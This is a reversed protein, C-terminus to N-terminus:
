PDGLDLAEPGSGSGPESFWRRGSESPAFAAGRSLTPSGVRANRRTLEWMWSSAGNFKASCKVLNEFCQRFVSHLPSEGNSVIKPTNGCLICSRSRKGAVLRCPNINRNTGAPVPCPLQMKPVITTDVPIRRFLFANVTAGHEGLSRQMRAASIASIPVLRRGIKFFALSRPLFSENEDRYEAVIPTQGHLISTRTVKKRRVSGEASHRGRTFSFVM